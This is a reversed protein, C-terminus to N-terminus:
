CVVAAMSTSHSMRLFIFLGKDFRIKIRQFLELAKIQIEIEHHNKLLLCVFLFFFM